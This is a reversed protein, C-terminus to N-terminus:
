KGNRERLKGVVYDFDSHPVLCNSCDKVGNPLIKFNGGCNEGMLYLPCYCFLCNFNEKNEVKHCPFYECSTHQFFKYNQTKKDM